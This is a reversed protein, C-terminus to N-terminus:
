EERRMAQVLSEMHALYKELAERGKASLRFETKPMRGQFYKKVSIYGAEELKRAHMSLNGDTTGLLEKLESFTMRDTVALASVISLRVREHILREIKPSGGEKALGRIVKMARAQKNEPAPTKSAPMAPNKKPNAM